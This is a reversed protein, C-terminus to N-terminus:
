GHFTQANSRENGVCVQLASHRRPESRLLCRQLIPFPGHFDPTGAKSNFVMGMPPWAGRPSPARQSPRSRRSGGPRGCLSRWAAAAFGKRSVASRQGEWSEMDFAGQGQRGERQVEDGGRLVCERAFHGPDGREFCVGGKGVACMHESGGYTSEEHMCNVNRPLLGNEMAIRDTMIANITDRAGEDRSASGISEGLFDRVDFSSMQLLAAIMMHESLLEGTEEARSWCSM